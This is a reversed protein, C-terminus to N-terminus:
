RLAWSFADATVPPSSGPDGSVSSVSVATQSRSSEQVIFEFEPDAMRVDQRGDRRAYECAAIRRNHGILTRHSM